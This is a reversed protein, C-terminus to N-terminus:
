GLSPLPQQAPATARRSTGEGGYWGVLGRALLLATTPDAVAIGRISDFDGTYFTQIGGMVDANGSQWRSRLM